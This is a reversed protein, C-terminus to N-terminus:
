HLNSWKTILTFTRFKIILHRCIYLKDFDAMFNHDKAMIGCTSLLMHARRFLDTNMCGVNTCLGKLSDSSRERTRFATFCVCCIFLHNIQCDVGPSDPM